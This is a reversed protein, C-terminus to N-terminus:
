TNKSSVSSKKPDPWGIDIAYSVIGGRAGRRRRATLAGVVAERRFLISFGGRASRRLTSSEDAFIGEPGYTSAGM